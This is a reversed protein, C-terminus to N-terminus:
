LFVTFSVVQKTIMKLKVYIKGVFKSSRVCGLIKKIYFSDTDGYYISKKHFGNIERIFNIMIRKSNSLTAAGLHSPLTNEVDNNGDLGDDKKLKVNYNVNPLRWYDLKYEDYEKEM